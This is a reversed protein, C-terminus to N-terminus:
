QGVPEVSKGTDGPTAKFIVEGALDHVTIGEEMKAELQTLREALETFNAPMQPNLVSKDVVDFPARMFTCDDFAILVEDKAKVIAKINRTDCANVRKDSAACGCSSASKLPNSGLYM